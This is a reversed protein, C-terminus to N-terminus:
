QKIFRANGAISGDENQLVLFYVGSNLRSIDMERYANFSELERGTIDIIRAVVNKLSTNSRINLQNTAPNPYVSFEMLAQEEVSIPDFVYPKGFVPRIMVSGPISSQIWNTGLNYFLKESRDRQLDFGVTFTLDPNAQQKWGIFMPGTSWSVPEDFFYHYFVNQVTYEPYITDSQAVLTEPFSDGSWVELQFFEDSLNWRVPDFYIQVGLLDDAKKVDYKVAVSGPEDINGLGFAVEASGDDYAYYNYFKQVYVVTDNSKVEDATNWLMSSVTFYASDSNLEVNTPYFGVFEDRIVDEPDAPNCGQELNGCVELPAIVPTLTGTDAVFVVTGTLDKAEFRYTLQQQDLYDNRLRFHNKHFMLSNQDSHEKYHTWPMSSYDNLLSQTRQLIAVDNTLTDDMTRGEDLKIYDLHWFDGNTHLSAYNRFRFQFGDYLHYASDVPIMVRFFTSDDTIGNTAWVETWVSDVDKFELLLKDSLEPGYTSIGGAQYYFSLIVDSKSELNIPVSTLTDSPAGTNSAFWNNPQGLSNVGDLTVVGISYPDKALNDNVFAHRDIWKSADPWYYDDFKKNFYDSFDDFFPLELTDAAAASKRFPFKENLQYLESRSSLPVLTEQATGAVSCIIALCFLLQRKM